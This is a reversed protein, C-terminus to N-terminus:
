WHKLEGCGTPTCYVVTGTFRNVRYIGIESGRVSSYAGGHAVAALILAGALILAARTSM